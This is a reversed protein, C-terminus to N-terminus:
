VKVNAEYQQIKVILDVAFVYRKLRSGVLRGTTSSLTLEDEM